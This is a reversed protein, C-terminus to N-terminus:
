LLTPLSANRSRIRSLIGQRPSSFTRYDANINPMTTRDATISRVGNQLVCLDLAHVVPNFHFL